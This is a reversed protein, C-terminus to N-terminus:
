DAESTSSLATTNTSSDSKPKKAAAKKKGKDKGPALTTASISVAPAKDDSKPVTLKASAVGLDFNSEEGSNIKDIHAANVSHQHLPLPGQPRGAFRQLCAAQTHGPHTCWSCKAGEKCFHCDKVSHSSSACAFCRGKMKDSWEKHQAQTLLSAAISMYTADLDM